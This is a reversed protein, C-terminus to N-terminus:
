HNEKENLGASGHNTELIERLRAMEKEDLGRLREELTLGQLREESRMGRLREEPPLEPLVERAVDRRFDEFTYPMDIGLEKYRHYIESLVPVHDPQRWHYDRAGQVVRKAEFSFLEWLSM